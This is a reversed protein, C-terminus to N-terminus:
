SKIADFWGRINSIANKEDIKTFHAELHNKNLAYLLCLVDKATRKKEDPTISAFFNVDSLSKTKEELHSEGHLILRYMLNEFYARKDEPIINLIKKDTSIEAMGECFEFTSFAELVRRMINGIVLEYDESENIVYKYVVRLLQSYESRKIKQFGSLNRKDLEALRYIMKQGNDNPPIRFQKVVEGVAKDLDYVTLLDHSLLVIKSNSNGRLIKLMQSKLYSIIGVRNELDFSSVPDDLIILYEAKHVDKEDVNNLLETFFYCLALINREGASINKPKVPKGDSLIEYNDGSPTINLRNNSFFVYQLGRNIFDVAIKINKKDQNLKELDNKAEQLADAFKELKDSESQKKGQQQKYDKHFTKIEQYALKKNIESLEDRFKKVKSALDNYEDVAKQLLEQNDKLTDVLSILDAPFDTIATYPNDIKKDILKNYEAIKENLADASESCKNATAKNALEFASYDNHVQPLKSENLTATHEEVDKNLVKEISELLDSKYKDTVTQLCFPCSDTSSSFEFRIEDLRKVNQAMKLLKKERDSLNPTEIECALQKEIRGAASTYDPLIPIKTTIKEEASEAAQLETYKESYKNSLYELTETKSPNSSIVSTIVADTVSVNQLRGLIEKERSAWSDSGRLTVKIKEYHNDPSLVNTSDNYHAYKESQTSHNNKANKYVAKAAIITDELGVREGLMIITNLGDQQLRINNQIYDENFVFVQKKDDESLSIDSEDSDVLKATVIDEIEAKDSAKVIARSLTSKGSGNRGFIISVRETEKESFLQLVTEKEFAAGKFKIGTIKSIM